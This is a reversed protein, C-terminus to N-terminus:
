PPSGLLRQLLPEVRAARAEDIPETDADLLETAGTRAREAIQRREPASFHATTRRIMPLVQTFHEPALGALWADLLPFLQSSTALVLGAGGVTPSLFGELWLAAATPETGRALARALRDAAEDLPLRGANLVLRSSTGGLRPATAPRTALAAVAAWWSEVRSSGLLDLAQGAGVLADALRAAAGDDLGSCAPGLGATAREVLAQAVDALAGTDTHRVDGYRVTAALPPLARLMQEVDTAAASREGLLEVLRPIAAALDANLAQEVLEAATGLDTAQEGLQIARTAAALELTSGLVSAEVIRLVLEPRWALRWVEHFTGLSGEPAPRRRGWDVDILALRHLFRSQALQHPQRLDLDLARATAETRLRLRRAHTEVDRQLPVRPVTAPLRGIDDGVILRQEILRLRTAEGACLVALTAETVDGLSPRPRDRLAALTETLRVTDVVQAPSADLDAARLLRAASALWGVLDGGTAWLHRYWAPSEVGAGYGSAYALRGATWPVWTAEVKVRRLGRLLADDHSKPPLTELAPAHWAGCVVAIRSFGEARAQRIARRMQAERRQERLPPPPQTERVSQMAEAIARFVDTDDARQEVLREWWREADVEGAAAALIRIPDEAHEGAEDHQALGIAVPLDCFRVPVAQRLGYRIANWEPSFVAFPYFVGVGPADARYVVLAVPPRMSREAAFPLLDQADPPGEVLIVDPALITLARLLSRASGPGHHRIGFVSVGDTV